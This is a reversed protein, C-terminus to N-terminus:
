WQLELGPLISLRQTQRAFLNEIKRPEGRQQGLAKGGALHQPDRRCRGIAGYLTEDGLDADVSRLLDLVELM